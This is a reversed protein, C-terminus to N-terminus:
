GDRGGHEKLTTRLFDLAVEDTHRVPPKEMEPQLSQLAQLAAAAAAKVFAAPDAGAAEALEVLAVWAVEEATAARWRTGFARRLRRKLDRIM